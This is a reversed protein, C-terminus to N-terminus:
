KFQIIICPTAFKLLKDTGRYLYNGVNRILWSHGDKHVTQRQTLGQFHPIYAEGCRRCSNVLWSPTVSWLVETMIMIIWGHTLLLIIQSNIRVKFVPPITETRATSNIGSYRPSPHHISTSMKVETSLPPSRGIDRRWRAIYRSLFALHINCNTDFVRGCQCVVLPV